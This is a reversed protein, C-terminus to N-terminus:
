GSSPESGGQAPAAPQAAAAPKAAGQQPQQQQPGGPRQQPRPGRKNKDFRRGGGGGAGAERGEGGRGEGRGEGGRGRDGGKGRGGRKGKGRGKGRGKGEFRGRGKEPRPPTPFMEHLYYQEERQETGQPAKEGEALTLVIVRKVRCDQASAGRAKAIDLAHQFFKLKDGEYKFAETLLAPIEEATKSQSALEEMKQLGRKLTFGDFETITKMTQPCVVFLGTM